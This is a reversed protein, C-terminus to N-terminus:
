KLKDLLEKQSKGMILTKRLLDLKTNKRSKIWKLSPSDDKGLSYFTKFANCATSRKKNFYTSVVNAFLESLSNATVVQFELGLEGEIVKNTQCRCKCFTWKLGNKTKIYLDEELVANFLYEKAIDEGSPKGLGIKYYFVAGKSAMKELEFGKYQQHLKKIKEESSLPVFKSQDDELLFGEELGEITFSSFPVPTLIKGTEKDILLGNKFAVEFKKM